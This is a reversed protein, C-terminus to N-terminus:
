RTCGEAFYWDTSPAPIGASCHGGSKLGIKFYMAREVIVPEDVLVLTSFEVNGMGEIDDVHVTQRSKKPVKIGFDRTSGDPLMFELKGSADKEGPNVLLIYTDYGGDTYGEALYWTTLPSTLGTSGTGEKIGFADFYISREVVIPESAQIYTSVDTGNIEKLENLHVTLRSSPEVEMVKEFNRGNQLMFTFKVEASKGSPNGVCVYTDFGARTCGEALYWVRSPESIGPSDHGGTNKGKRWYMAREAIVPEQASVHTSFDAKELGGLESVNLTFRSHPAINFDYFRSNGNPDMFEFEVPDEKDQPNQVLIFTDFGWDTSGEAFYWNRAPAIVGSACHGGRAGALDFYMSREAIVGVGNKSRIHTSVDNNFVYEDVHITKRSLPELTESLKQVKGDGCMFELELEASEKPDPNQMLIYEDFQGPDKLYLDVGTAVGEAIKQRVEDKQLLAAEEPNTLFLGELLCSPMDTNKLVYFGAEKVGRDPRGLRKVVEKHVYTALKRGDESDYYAYTETGSSTTTYANNHISVFISANASNAIRCRDELSVYTDDERTMIVRYGMDLLIKRAKLAIDLNPVKEEVGNYSAGPDSGGHGPDLCVLFGGRGSSTESACTSSWLMFFLFVVVFAIIGLIKIEKM